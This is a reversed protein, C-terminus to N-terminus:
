LDKDLHTNLTEKNLYFSISSLKWLKSIRWYEAKDSFITVIIFDIFTVQTPIKLM